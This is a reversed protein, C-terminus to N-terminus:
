KISLVCEDYYFYIDIFLGWIEFGDRVSDRCGAPILALYLVHETKHGLTMWIGPTQDIELVPRISNIRKPLVKIDACFRWPYLTLICVAPHFPLAHILYRDSRNMSTDDLGSMEPEANGPLRDDVQLYTMEICM